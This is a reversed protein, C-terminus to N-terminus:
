VNELKLNEQLESCNTHGELKTKLSNCESIISDLKIKYTEELEALKIQLNSITQKYGLNEDQIKALQPRLTALEKAM